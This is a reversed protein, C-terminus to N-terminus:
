GTSFKVIFKFIVTYVVASVASMMGGMGSFLWTVLEVDMGFPDNEVM